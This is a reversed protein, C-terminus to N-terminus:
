GAQVPCRPCHCVQGSVPSAATAHSGVSASIKKYLVSLIQSEKLLPYTEETLPTKPKGYEGYQWNLIPGKKREIIHKLEDYSNAEIVEDIEHISDAQVMHGDVRHLYKVSILM